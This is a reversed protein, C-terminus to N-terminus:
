PSLLCFENILEILFSQHINVGDEAIQDVSPTNVICSDDKPFYHIGIMQKSIQDRCAFLIKVSISPLTM